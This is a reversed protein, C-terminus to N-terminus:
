GQGAAPAPDADPPADMWLEVERLLVWSGPRVPYRLKLTVTLETATPPALTALQLYRSCPPETSDGAFPSACWQERVTAGQADRFTFRLQVSHSATDTDMRARAFVFRGSECPYSPSSLAWEAHRYRHVFQIAPTPSGGSPEGILIDTMPIGSNLEWTPTPAASRGLELPPFEIQRINNATVDATLVSCNRFSAAATANHVALINDVEDRNGDSNYGVFWLRFSSAPTEPAKINPFVDRSLYFLTPYTEQNRFLIVDNEKAHEAIYQVCSRQDGFTCSLWSAGYPFDRLLLPLTGTAWAGAVGALALGAMTKALVPSRTVKLAAAAAIKGAYAVGAGLALTFFPTISLLYRVDLKLQVAAMGALPCVLTALPIVAGWRRLAIGAMLGWAAIGITWWFYPATQGTVVQVYQDLPLWDARESGCLFSTMEETWQGQTVRAAIARPLSVAPSYGVCVLTVGAALAASAATWRWLRERRMTRAGVLSAAFYGGLVAGWGSLVLMSSLHSMGMLFTALALGLAALWSTRVLLSYLCLAGLLGFFMAYSYGRFATSYAMHYPSLALATAAAAAVGASSFMRLGILYILPIAAIGFVLPPLLIAWDADGFVSTSIWTALTSLPHNGSGYANLLFQRPGDQIFGLMSFSEDPSMCYNMDPIRVLLGLVTIGLCVLLHQRHARPKPIMENTM